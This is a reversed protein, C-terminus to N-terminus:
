RRRSVKIEVQDTTPIEVEVPEASPEGAVSVRYRARGLPGIEIEGNGDTLPLVNAPDVRDRPQMWGADDLRTLLVVTRAVPTAEEDRVRVRLTAAGVDIQVRDASQPVSVPARTIYSGNAVDAGTLVVWHEGRPIGSFNLTGAALAAADIERTALPAMSWGSRLTLVVRFPPLNGTLAVTVAASRQATARAASADVATSTPALPLRAPPPPYTPVALDPQATARPPQPADLAHLGAWGAVCATVAAIAALLVRFLTSM